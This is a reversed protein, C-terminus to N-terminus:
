YVFITTKPEMPNLPKYIKLGLNHQHILSRYEIMNQDYEEKYKEKEAATLERCEKALKSTIEKPKLNTNQEKITKNWKKCFIMYANMPKKISEAVKTAEEKKKATEEKKSPPKPKTVPPKPKPSPTKDRPKPREKTEGPNAELIKIANKVRELSLYWDSGNIRIRKQDKVIGDKKMLRCIQKTYEEREGSSKKRIAILAQSFTERSLGRPMCTATKLATLLHPNLEPIRKNHFNVVGGVAALCIQIAKIPNTTGFRSCNKAKEKLKKIVPTQGITTGDDKLKSGLYMYTKRTKYGKSKGNFIASKERNIVLGHKNLIKEITATDTTNLIATDDAYAVVSIGPIATKLESIVQDMLHNFLVPSITSGQPLGRKSDVYTDLIMIRQNTVIQKTLEYDEVPLKDKIRNLVTERPVSNYAKQLDIFICPTKDKLAESVKDYAMHTSLGKRFGFIEKDNEFKM